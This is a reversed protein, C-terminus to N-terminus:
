RVLKPRLDVFLNFLIYIKFCLIGVFAKFIFVKVDQIFESLSLM